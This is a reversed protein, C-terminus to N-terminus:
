LRSCGVLPGRRCAVRDSSIQFYTSNIASISLNVFDLWAPDKRVQANPRLIFELQEDQTLRAKSKLASSYLVGLLGRNTTFHLVETIGRKKIEDDISM